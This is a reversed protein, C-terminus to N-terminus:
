SPLTHYSTSTQRVEGKTENGHTCDRCIGLADCTGEKGEYNQCTDDPLGHSHLYELADDPHGGERVCVSLMTVWRGPPLWASLLQLDFRLQAPSTTLPSSRSAVRSELNKTPGVSRRGDVAGLESSLLQRWIANRMVTIGIIAKGQPM